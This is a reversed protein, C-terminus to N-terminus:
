EKPRVPPNDKTFGWSYVRHLVLKTIETFGTIAEALIEQPIHDHKDTVSFAVPRKASDVETVNMFFHRESLHTFGSTASYVRGMWPYEQSFHDVLFRDTMAIGDLTKQKRVPTGRLTETAFAHPDAVLWGAAYRLFTDLQPRVLTTAAVYNNARLLMVFGSTLSMSRNLVGLTLFDFPFLAGGGAKMVATAEDLHAKNLTELESLLEEIMECLSDVAPQSYLCASGVHGNWDLRRRPGGGYLYWQAIARM